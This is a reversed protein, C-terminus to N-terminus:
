RRISGNHEAYRLVTPDTIDLIEIGYGAADGGLLTQIQSSLKPDLDPLAFDPWELLRLDVEELTLLSGPKLTGRALLPERALDFAELRAIGTSEYGDLPYAGAAGAGAVALWVAVRFGRMM